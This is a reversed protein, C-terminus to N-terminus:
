AQAHCSRGRLLWEIMLLNNHKSGFLACMQFRKSGGLFGDHLHALLANGLVEYRGKGVGEFSAFEDFDGKQGRRPLVPVVEGFVEGVKEMGLGDGDDAALGNEVAAGLAIVDFM